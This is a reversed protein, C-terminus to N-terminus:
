ISPTQSTSSYKSMAHATSPVAMIVMRGHDGHRMLWDHDKVDDRYKDTILPNELLSPNGVGPRPQGLIMQLQDSEEEACAVAGDYPTSDMISALTGALPAEGASALNSGIWCGDV